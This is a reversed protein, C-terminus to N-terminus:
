KVVVRMFYANVADAPPTVTFRAKGDQPVDFAVDIDDSSFAEPSLTAAGEVGLVKRLNAKVLERNADLIVVGEGIGVDKLSVEFSFQGSASRM